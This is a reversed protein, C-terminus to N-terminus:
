QNGSQLYSRPDWRSKGIRVRIEYRPIEKKVQDLVVQRLHEYESAPVDSTPTVRFAMHGGFIRIDVNKVGKIKMVSKKARTKDDAATPQSWDSTDLNPSSNRIGFRGDDHMYDYNNTEFRRNSGTGLKEKHDHSAGQEVQNNTCAVTCVLIGTVVLFLFRRM